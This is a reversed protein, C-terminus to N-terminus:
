GVTTPPYPAISSDRVKPLRTPARGNVTITSRAPLIAWTWSPGKLSAFNFPM